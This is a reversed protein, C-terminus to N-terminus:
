GVHIYRCRKLNYNKNVKAFGHFIKLLLQLLDSKNLDTLMAM